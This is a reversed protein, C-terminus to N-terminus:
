YKIRNIEGGGKRRTITTSTTEETESGTFFNALIYQSMVSICDEYWRKIPLNQFPIITLRSEQADVHM